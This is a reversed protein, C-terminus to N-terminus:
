PGVMVKGGGTTAVRGSGSTARFDHLGIYTHGRHEAPGSPSTQPGAAQAVVTATLAAAAAAAGVAVAVRRGITFSM